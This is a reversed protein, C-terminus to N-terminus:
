CGSPPPSACPQRRHRTSDLVVGMLETGGRRAEFLLCYGAATTFGTKIGIAGRYSRLLLDTNTWYYRHHQSTAASLTAASASSRAFDPVKMAAEGMILLDRPSSYTATPTPWPLGDFNAFYTQTMGLKRAKANM